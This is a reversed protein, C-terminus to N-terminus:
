RVRKLGAQTALPQTQGGVHTVVNGDLTFQTAYARHAQELAARHEAADFWTVQDGPEHTIVWFPLGLQEAAARTAHHLLVHDPHGYGGDSDYSVLDSAQIERAYAAVDATVEVLSASTLSEPGATDSPGAVTPSVWRMGSDEYRRPMLGAVRAPPLGLFARGAAGLSEIALGLEFERVETLPTGAPYHDTSGPVAEGQEGRTATLVFSEGPLALIVAATDLTEDDPHAHVFLFRSSASIVVDVIVAIRSLLPPESRYHCSACRRGTGRASCSATARGFRHRPTWQSLEAAVFSSLSQGLEAARAKLTAVM